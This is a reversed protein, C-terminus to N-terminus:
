EVMREVVVLSVSNSYVRLTHVDLTLSRATYEPSQHSEVLNKKTRAILLTNIGNRLEGDLVSWASMYTFQHDVRGTCENREILQLSEDGFHSAVLEVSKVQM